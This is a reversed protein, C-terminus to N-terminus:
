FGYKGGIDDIVKRLKVSRVKDVGYTDISYRCISLAEQLSCLDDAYMWILVKMFKRFDQLKARAIWVMSIKLTFVRPKTFFVWCDMIQIDSM